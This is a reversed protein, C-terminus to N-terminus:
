FGAAQRRQREDAKHNFVLRPEPRGRFLWVALTIPWALSAVMGTLFWGVGFGAPGFIRIRGQGTGARYRIVVTAAVMGLVYSWAFFVAVGDATM